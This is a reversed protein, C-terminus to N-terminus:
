IRRTVVGAHKLYDLDWKKSDKLNWESVLPCGAWKLGGEMEMQHGPLSPTSSAHRVQGTGMYLPLAARGRDTSWAERITWFVGVKESRWAHALSAIVLWVASWVQWPWFDKNSVATGARSLLVCACLAFKLM